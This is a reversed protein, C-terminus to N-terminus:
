RYDITKKLFNILMRIVEGKHRKQFDIVIRLLARISFTTPPLKNRSRLLDLKLAFNHRSSLLFGNKSHIHLNFLLFDEHDRTVCLCDDVYKFQLKEAKDESENMTLHRKIVGYSNRPDRGNLWMGISAGDFIGKFYISKPDSITPLYEVMYPSSKQIRSLVTMDTLHSDISLEKRIEGALWTTFEYNPSSLVASVDHTDNFKIWTLKKLENFDALPFNKFLLIDSEIHIFPSEPDTVRHWAELAILRELSYRWFGSRFNHNLSQKSLVLEDARSTEYLFSDINLNRIKRNHVLDSYILIVRASPFKRTTAAINSWLHEAKSPGLHVFILRSM